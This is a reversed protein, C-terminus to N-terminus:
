DNEISRARMVQGTQGIAYEIFLAVPVHLDEVLPDDAPMLFVIRHFPTLNTSSRKHSILLRDNEQAAPEIGGRGRRDGFFFSELKM